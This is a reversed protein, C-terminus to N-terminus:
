LLEYTRNMRVAWIENKQESNDSWHLLLAVGEMNSECVPAFIFAIHIFPFNSVSLFANVSYTPFLM